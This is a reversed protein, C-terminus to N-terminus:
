LFRDFHLQQYPIRHRQMLLTQLAEIMPPPGAFYFEYRDLPGPLDREVAEHVFGRAGSWTKGTEGGSVVPTYRLRGSAAPGGLLPAACLDAPTRVGDFFHVPPGEPRDTAARAISLMPALGSGGAICVIERAGEERLFANGYPGDLTIADGVALRDFLANSGRGGPVRRVIFQWRGEANALNSMSYARAGPTGPLYLLAYQGSLFAAPTATRFTFEAMDATLPRVSELVAPRREPPVAPRYEDDCRMRVTCRGRPRCQCALRKGRRRDRESLGPAEPWLEELEGEILEFRCAGCGGVSCEHPFGIGARLAGRLLTDEEASVAFAEGGEILITHEM